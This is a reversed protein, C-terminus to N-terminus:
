STFPTGSPRAFITTHSPFKWPLVIVITPNEESGDAVVPKPGNVGPNTDTGNPSASASAVASSSGSTTANRTSGIWPSAPTRIGGSPGTRYLAVLIAIVGVVILPWRVFAVWTAAGGLEVLAATTPFLVVIAVVLLIAILAAASVVLSTLFRRITGREEILGDALLADLHRRIAAPTVGLDAALVAATSPGKEMVTRAVRDRTRDDLGTKM